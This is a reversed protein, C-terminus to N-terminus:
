DRREEDIYKTLHYMRDSHPCAALHIFNASPLYEKFRKMWYQTNWRTDLFGFPPNMRRINYEVWTQETLYRPPAPLPPPAWIDAHQNNFLVVGTNFMRLKIMPVKQQEATIKSERQIWAKTENHTYDEHIWLINDPLEEFINRATRKVFVDADLFLVRRYNAVLHRLRFKNAFPYEPHQDDTIAHFDVGCREAYEQMRPGTLALLDLANQGAAITVITTDRTAPLPDEERLKVRYPHSVTCQATFGCQQCKTAGKENFTVSQCRECKLEVAPWFGAPCAARPIEVGVSILCDRDPHQSKFLTCVDDEAYSCRNCASQRTQQYGVLRKGPCRHKPHPGTHGCVECHYDVRPPERRAKPERPKREATEKPVASLQVLGKHFKKGACGM